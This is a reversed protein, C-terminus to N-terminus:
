GPVAGANGRPRDAIEERDAAGFKGSGYVATTRMLYGVKDRITSLRPSCDRRLVCRCRTDLATGLPERPVAVIRKESVRGAEQLPVNQEALREIDETPRFVTSSRSPRTGPM